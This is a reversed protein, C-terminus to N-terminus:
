LAGIISQLAAKGRPTLALPASRLDTPSLNVTVLGLGPDGPRGDGIRMATTSVTNKAITGAAVIDRQPIGADALAVRTLIELADLSPIGAAKAAVILRLIARLQPREAEMRSTLTPM